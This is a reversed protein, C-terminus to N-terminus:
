RTGRLVEGVQRGEEILEGEVGGMRLDSQRTPGLNVRSKRASGRNIKRRTQRRTRGVPLEAPQPASTCWSSAPNAAIALDSEGYTERRGTCRQLPRWRRVEANAHEVCIRRSSQRRKMARGITSSGVKYLVGLAEHTLGTRLHVLAAPLRDTSVLECKPEAGAERRRDGERRGYRGSEGRAVWRPSLEAVLEGLHPCSALGDGHRWVCRGLDIAPRGMLTPPM